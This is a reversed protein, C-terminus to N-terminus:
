ISRILTEGAMLDAISERRRIEVMRAGDIMIEAIRPRSNYNSSMAFGYAGASCIALLDGERLSLVRDLGLFDGSECIPGVVDYRKSNQDSHEHVPLINQWANYLAPRLLDNMGADLIAFNKDANEKLYEVRTLLVGANGVISRGPEIIIQKRTDTITECLMSVLQQALLPEENRYRIGLGGGVDLHELDFGLSELKDIVILLRKLADVHPTKGTIQSGIHCDIGVVRIYPLARAQEYISIADQVQIGFKNSNLGTAIYPHTDADVDPNIRLSVPAVQGAEAAVGNLRTLESASEVNFCKIGAELARAMEHRQKGVGSFIVKDPSGGARLVRELEGISVIDFGSGLDALINLVAINSNAKVAYCILHSREAFAQNYALWQAEIAARSYVYCPTGFRKAVEDLPLQDACLQGNQYIFHQM